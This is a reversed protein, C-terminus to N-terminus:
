RACRFGYSSLTTSPSHGRESQARLYEPDDLYWAGGRSEARGRDTGTTWEWLNGALDQVGQKSAGAPHSGVPCTSRRKGAGVDNGEGDWCARAGPPDNGWPYTWDEGSGAAWEREAASPLRAKAWKCFAEAQDLDVCNMPHDLRDTYWNCMHRESQTWDSPLRPHEEEDQHLNPAEGTWPVTCAGAAVCNMYQEVTTGMRSLAFPAVPDYPELQGGPLQVFDIGSEDNPPALRALVDLATGEALRLPLVYRGAAGEVVLLKSCALAEFSGPVPGLDRGDLMAKAAVV